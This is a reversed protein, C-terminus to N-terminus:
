DLADGGINGWGNSFAYRTPEDTEHAMCMGVFEGEDARDVMEQRVEAKNDGAVGDRRVEDQGLDFQCIGEV